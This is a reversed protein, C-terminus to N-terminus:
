PASTMPSGRLNKVLDGAGLIMLVVFLGFYMYVPGPIRIGSFEQLLDLLVPLIMAFVSIKVSQGYTIRVKCFRTWFFPILALVLVQILKVVLFYITAVVMFVPGALPLYKNAIDKLTASSLVIDPFRELPLTTIQGNSAKTVIADQTLVIGGETDKLYNVAEGQKGDRTDIIATLHKKDTGPVVYPQPKTISAKGKAITIEPLIGDYKRIVFDAFAKIKPTVTSVIVFASLCACALLILTVLLVHTRIISMTIDMETVEEKIRGGSRFLAGEDAFGLRLKTIV